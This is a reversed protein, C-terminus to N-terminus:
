KKGTPILLFNRNPDVVEVNPRYIREYAVYGIGGIVLLLVFVGAWM